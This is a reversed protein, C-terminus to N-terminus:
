AVFEVESATVTGNGDRNLTVRFRYTRQQPETSGANTLTQTAAVLVKATDASDSELAAEVIEGHAKVKAQQVVKAYADKQSSYEAKLQGSAVSLVRDIDASATDDQINTLNLIAQKATQVYETRRDSMADAHRQHYIAVGGAGLLLVLSLVTVVTAAWGLVGLSRRPESRIDTTPDALAPAADAQRAPIRRDSLALDVYTWGQDAADDDAGDADVVEGGRVTPDDTADAPPGASDDGAVQETARREGTTPPDSKASGPAVTGERAAGQSMPSRGGDPVTPVITAQRFDAPVVPEAAATAASVPAASPTVTSPTVAGSATSEAAPPVVPTAPVSGTGASTGPAAAASEAAATSPPAAEVHGDVPGAQRSARRRARGSNTRSDSM